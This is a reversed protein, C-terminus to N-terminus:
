NEETKFWLDECDFDFVKGQKAVAERLKSGWYSIEAGITQSCTVRVALYVHSAWSLIKWVNAEWAELQDMVDGDTTDSANGGTRCAEGRFVIFM